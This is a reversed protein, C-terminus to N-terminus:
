YTPIKAKIIKMAEPGCQAEMAALCDAVADKRRKDGFARTLCPVIKALHPYMLNGTSQIFFTLASLARDFAEPVLLAKRLHLAVAEVIGVFLELCGEARTVLEHFMMPALVVYPHETEALGDACVILLDPSFGSAAAPDWSLYFRSASSQLRCPISGALYSQSFTTRCHRNASQFPNACKNPNLRQTSIRRHDEEVASGGKTAVVRVTSGVPRVTAPAGFPFSAGSMKWRSLWPPPSFFLLTHQLLCLVVLFVKKEATENPGM